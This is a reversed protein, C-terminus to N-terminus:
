FKKDPSPALSDARGRIMKGVLSNLFENKEEAPKEATQNIITINNSKQM